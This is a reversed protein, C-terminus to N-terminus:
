LFLLKKKVEVAKEFDNLFRITKGKPDVKGDPVSMGVVRAQYIKIVGITIPGCVGDVSLLRVPLIRNNSKNLLRQVIAVDRKLNSSKNGVSLNITEM